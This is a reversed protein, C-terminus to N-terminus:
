EGIFESLPTDIEKDKPLHGREQLYGTALIKFILALSKSGKNNCPLVFDINNTTNNSDCLGIIPIGIKIADNVANKDPWPDIVLLIEPEFFNDLNTNTIVGAPYRGTYSKVNTIKAFTKVAQWGNERRSVVLIDEPDYKSLLKAALRLRKDIKQINLVSLGNPNVKYIFPEMDKTRFKTGIHIGAALYQEMPVLLDETEAM